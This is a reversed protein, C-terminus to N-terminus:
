HVFQLSRSIRAVIPDWYAKQRAPYDTTFEITETGNSAGIRYTRGYKEIHYVVRGDVECSYAFLRANSVRYAPRRGGCEATQDFAHPTSATFDMRATQGEHTMSFSGDGNDRAEAPLDAALFLDRHTVYGPQALAGAPLALGAIAVATAIGKM